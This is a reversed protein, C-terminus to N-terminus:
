RKAGGFKNELNYIVNRNIEADAIAEGVRAKYINPGLQVTVLDKNISLVKYRDIYDGSRVLYDSGEINLIASPNKNDYMIGSVKTSVIKAAETDSSITEPPAMLEFGYKTVNSYSENAPLFPNSRGFDDVTLTVMKEESQDIVDIEIEENETNDENNKAPKSTAENSFDPLPPEPEKMLFSACFAILAIIAIAVLGLFLKKGKPSFTSDLKKNITDLIKKM